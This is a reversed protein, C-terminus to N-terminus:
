EHPGRDEPTNMPSAAPVPITAPEPEDLLWGTVNAGAGNQCGCPLAEWACGSWRGQHVPCMRTRLKQGQYLLRNLLNSKRIQTFVFHIQGLFAEQARLEQLSQDRPSRPLGDNRDVKKEAEHLKWAAYSRADAEASFPEKVRDYIGPYLSETLRRTRDALADAWTELAKCYREIPMVPQSYYRSLATLMAEAQEDSLIDFGRGSPRGAPALGKETKKETEDM